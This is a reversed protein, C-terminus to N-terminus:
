RPLLTDLVDLVTDRDEDSFGLYPRAPVTVSRARVTRGALKFVLRGGPRKPRITAGFQHVAAYVKNSGVIVSDAETAFTISGQLGGRMGAERLIGPGRKVAAYAPNLAAWAKGEPDQGADFRDRTNAALGTGIARLIGPRRTAGDRLRKMAERWERDDFTFTIRAGTM